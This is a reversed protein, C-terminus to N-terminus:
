YTDQKGRDGLGNKRAKGWRFKNEKAREKGAKECERGGLQWFNERRGVRFSPVETM